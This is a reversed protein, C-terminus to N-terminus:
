ACGAHFGRSDEDHVVLGAHKARDLAHQTVGVV